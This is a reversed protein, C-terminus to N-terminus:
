KLYYIFKKTCACWVNLTKNWGNSDCLVCGCSLDKIRNDIIDKAILYFSYFRPFYEIHSDRKHKNKLVISEDKLKDLCGGKDITSGNEDHVVLKPYNSIVTGNPDLANNNILFTQEPMGEQYRKEKILKVMEDLYQADIYNM